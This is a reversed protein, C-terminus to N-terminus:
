FLGFTRFTFEYMTPLDRWLEGGDRTFWFSGPDYKNGVAYGWEYGYSTTVGSPPPPCVVFYDTGSTVTVDDFDVYHWTWSISVEDPTFVVTDLLTGNPAGTRLEVTLNFEPTGYLRLYIDVSTLTDLTPTFNQAAGWDSDIAHRIPLGRDQISQNVDMIEVEAFYKTVNLIMDATINVDQDDYYDMSDGEEHDLGDRHHLVWGGATSNRDKLFCVTDCVRYKKFPLYDSIAWKENDYEVSRLNYKNNVADEYDTRSIIDSITTNLDSCSSIVNLTQKPIYQTETQNFGLQNLDIVAVVDEELRHAKEYYYAGRLGYEEGAWAIFRINYKPIIENEKFYKAIALIIGLGIASDATGQNWWSDYLCGVIITKTPDTGYIQGIVNSSDINENWSQNLYYNFKYDYISNSNNIRTGWTKNIYFTPLPFHKRYNMDYTNENHDFLVLGHCYHDCKYWLYMEIMEVSLGIKERIGPFFYTDIKQYYEPIVRSRNPNFSPNEGIFVFDLSVKSSYYEDWWPLYTSVTLPTLNDISVGIYDEYLDFIFASFNETTNSNNYYDTITSKEKTLFETLNSCNMPRHQFFINEVTGSSSSFNYTLNDMDYSRKWSNNWRPCIFFDDLETTSQTTTNYIGIKSDSVELKDTFNYRYYIKYTLHNIAKIKEKYDRDSSDMDPRFLSLNEMYDGIIRAAEREGKTGFARGKEPGEEWDVDKIVDSLDQTVNIIYQCDLGAIEGHTQKQGIFHTTSGQEGKYDFPDPEDMPNFSSNDTILINDIVVDDTQTGDEIRLTGDGKSLNMDGFSKWYWDTRHGVQYWSFNKYGIIQENWSLSVNLSTDNKSYARVYFHYTGNDFVTFDWEAFDGSEDGDDETATYYGNSSDQTGELIQWNSGNTHDWSRDWSEAERWTYIYTDNSGEKEDNHEDATLTNVPLLFIVAVLICLIRKVFIRKMEM